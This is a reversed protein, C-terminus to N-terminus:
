MHRRTLSQKKPPPSNKSEWQMSQHKTEPDYQICWTGDGSIASDYVEANNLHDSSVSFSHEKQEGTLIEPVRKPSVKSMGLDEKLIQRVTERNINLEEAMMRVSLRRDSRVLARVKDVNAATRKSKPQGSRADDRVDERGEKFRRHWEFVSSKKMSHEGYAEQLLAATESASKGLKVCFKINIRQEM